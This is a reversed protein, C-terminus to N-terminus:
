VGAEQKWESILRNVVGEQTETPQGTERYHALREQATTLRQQIDELVAPDVVNEPQTRQM